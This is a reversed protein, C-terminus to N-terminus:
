TESGYTERYRSMREQKHKEAPRLFKDVILAATEGVSGSKAAELIARGAKSESGVLEQILFETQNEDTYGNEGYISEFQERRPGTLQYYGRGRTGHVNPVMEVRDAIMGSEDQFNILFARALVGATAEDVGLGSQFSDIMLGKVPADFGGQKRSRPRTATEVTRTEFGDEAMEQGGKRLSAMYMAAVDTMSEDKPGDLSFQDDERQPRALIGSSAKKLKPKNGSYAGSRIQDAIERSKFLANKYSM